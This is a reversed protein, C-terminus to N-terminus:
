WVKPGRKRIRNAVLREFVSFADECDAGCNRGAYRMRPAVQDLGRRLAQFREPDSRPMDILEQVVDVQTALVDTANYIVAFDGYNVFFDDGALAGNGRWAWSTRTNIDYSTHGGDFIVPICGSLIALYFHSRTLTDGAPELCFNSNVLIDWSTPQGKGVGCFGHVDDSEDSTHSCLIIGTTDGTTTQASGHRRMSSALLPRIWNRGQGKKMSGTFSVAIRRPSSANYTGASKLFTAPELLSTPYPLSVLTPGRAISHAYRSMHMRNWADDQWGDGLGISHKIGPRLNSEIAGIVVREVFPAPQELLAQLLHVSQERVFTFPQHVVILPTFGRGPQYLQERLLTWYRRQATPINENAHEWTFGKALLNHLGLSPVVVVDASIDNFRGDCRFPSDLWKGLMIRELAFEDFDVRNEASNALLMNREKGERRCFTPPAAWADSVFNNAGTCIEKGYIGGDTALDLDGLRAQPLGDFM